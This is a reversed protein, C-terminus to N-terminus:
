EKGFLNDILTKNDEYTKGVRTKMEIYDYLISSFCSSARGSAILTQLSLQHSEVLDIIFMPSLRNLNIESGNTREMHTVMRKMIEGRYNNTGNM